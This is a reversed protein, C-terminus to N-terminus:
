SHSQSGFGFAVSFLFVVRKPLPLLGILKYFHEFGVVGVVVDSPLSVAVVVEAVAPLLVM